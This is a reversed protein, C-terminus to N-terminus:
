GESKIERIRNNEIERQIKKEGRYHTPKEIQFADM